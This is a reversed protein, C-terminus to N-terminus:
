ARRAQAKRRRPWCRATRGAVCQVVKDLTATSYRLADTCSSRVSRRYSPPWKALTGAARGFGWNLLSAMLQAVYFSLLVAAVDVCLQLLVVTENHNDHDSELGPASACSLTMCVDSDIPAEACVVM